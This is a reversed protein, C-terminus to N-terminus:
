LTDPLDSEGVKSSPKTSHTRPKKTTATPASKGAHDATAAAQANKPQLEVTRTEDSDGFRVDITAPEYGDARVSLTKHAGPLGEAMRSEGLDRDNDFVRAQAPRVSVRVRSPVPTPAPAVPTPTPAIPTPSAALAPTAPTVPTSPNGQHTFLWAGGGVLGLGGVVVVLALASRAPRPQPTLQGNSESLSGLTRVPAPTITPADAHSGSSGPQSRAPTPGRAAFPGADVAPKASRSTVLRGGYGPPAATSLAFPALAADLEAMSQFRGALDKHLTREIVDAFAVPLWPALVDARPAPETIHKIAIQIPEDGQFPYQGTAMYFLVCGLSYIDSRGDVTRGQAQEPSMTVPTGLLTGTKTRMDGSPQASFRAIGLDLVFTRLTSGRSVLMINDAKLDRHVPGAEHATSMADCVQRGLDVIEALSFLHGRRTAGNITEGDVFDMVIYPLGNHQGFDFVAPFAPHNLRSPAAAERNFRELLEPALATLLKMAGLKQTVSQRVLAVQGMGGEGLVSLVQYRESVLNGPALKRSEDIYM